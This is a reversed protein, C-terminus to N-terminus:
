TTKTTKNKPTKAARKKALGRKVKSLGSSSGFIRSGIKAIARALSIGTSLTKTTSAERCVLRIVAVNSSKETGRANREIVIQEFSARQGLNAFHHRVLHTMVNQIM